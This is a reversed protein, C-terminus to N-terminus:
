KNLSGQASRSRWLLAFSGLLGAAALAHGWLPLRDLALESDMVILALGNNLMHWLIGPAISGTLLAVGTLLVGLFTTTVLRFLAMHFLGFILGVVLCAALPRFTRRVGYLLVGRFTLEEVVGPVVAFLLILQWLPMGSPMLKKALEELAENPVPLFRSAVQYLDQAVVAACPAGVVVAPWVIPKVGRLSLAERISLRYSRIVVAIFVLFLAQGVLVGAVVSLGASSASIVFYLAWLGAYWAFVRSRLRGQGDKPDAGESPLILREASLVRSASRLLLAAAGATSLWALAIMLWDYKGLLVDRVAVSLGVLPAAVVASRLEIGPLTPALALVPGVFTVPMFYLQAEKYTRATGFLLLLSSAVLAALPLFLLALLPAARLPASLLPGASADLLGLTSCVGLNLLQILTTVISATFILLLKATLLDTRGVGASLLTELTGREKEGAISDSAVSAGGVLMLLLIVATAYTGARSGSVEAATAVDVTSLWGDGDPNPGLALGREALAADRRLRQDEIFSRRLASEASQSSARDQRYSLVLVPLRAAEPDEPSKPASTSRTSRAGFAEADLLELYGDIEGRELAAAPDAISGRALVRAKVDGRALARDVLKHAEEAREGTVALTLVLAEAREHEAEKVERTMLLIAPTILFPLVFSFLLVRTDRLLSRAEMGLLIWIASLSM